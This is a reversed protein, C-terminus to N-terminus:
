ESAGAEADAMTKGDQTYFRASIRVVNDITRLEGTGSKPKATYFLEIEDGDEADRFAQFWKTDWLFYDVRKGDLGNTRVIFYTDSETLDDKKKSKAEKKVKTEFSVFFGSYRSLKEDANADIVKGTPAGVTKATEGTQQQQFGENGHGRNPERSQTPRVAAKEREKPQSAQTAPADTTEENAIEADVYIGGLEEPFAMRLGKAEACKELQNHPMKQWMDVVDGNKKLQVFESFLARSPFEHWTGHSFKKLWVTVAYPVAKATKGGWLKTHDADYEFEPTRSSPAYNGTREAIARYGNIGTQIVLKKEWTDGSGRQNRVVAHIQGTFPNLKRYACFELFYEVQSQNLDKAVHQKLLALKEASYQKIALEASPSVLALAAANTAM